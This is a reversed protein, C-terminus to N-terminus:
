VKAVYNLFCVKKIIPKKLHIVIQFWNLREANSIQNKEQNKPM